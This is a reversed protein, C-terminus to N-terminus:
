ASVEGTGRGVQAVHERVTRGDSAAEDLVSPSTGRGHEAVWAKCEDETGRFLQVKRGIVDRQPQRDYVGFLDSRYHGCGLWDIRYAPLQDAAETPPAPVRNGMGRAERAAMREVDCVYEVAEDFSDFGPSFGLGDLQHADFMGNAYERVEWTKAYFATRAIINSTV